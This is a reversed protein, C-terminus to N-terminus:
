VTAVNYYWSVGIMLPVLMPPTLRKFMDQMMIVNNKYATAVDYSWCNMCSARVNVELLTTVDISCKKM